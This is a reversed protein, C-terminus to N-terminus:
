PFSAQVSSYRKRRASPVNAMTWSRAWMARSAVPAATLTILAMNPDIWHEDHRGGAGAPARHRAPRRTRPLCALACQPPLRRRGDARPCQLRGSRGALHGLVASPPRVGALRNTRILPSCHAGDPALERGVFFHHDLGGVAPLLRDAVGGGRRSSSPPSITPATLTLWSTVSALAASAVRAWSSSCTCRAWFISATPRRAPPM